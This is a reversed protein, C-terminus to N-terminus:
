RRRAVALRTRLLWFRQALKAFFQGIAGLLTTRWRQVGAVFPVCTVQSARGDASMLSTRVEYRREPELELWPVIPHGKRKRGVHITFSRPPMDRSRVNVVLWSAALSEKRGLDYKVRLRKGLQDLQVPLKGAPEIRKTAQVLLRDPDEWQPHPGPGAPSDAEVGKLFPVLKTLWPARPTTDGWHGPWHVWPPGDDIVELTLEPQRGQGDAVDFWAKTDYLGPKVYSAHSGRAPYVVPRGDVTDVEQWDCRSAYAHQAYVAVDPQDAGHPIRLQIMEWDGEHAGLNAILTPDDYFYFWWYQLWDALEGRHVRGYVRDRLGPQATILRVYQSRYDKGSISLRSDPSGGPGLSELSLPRGAASDGSLTNGPNVVMEAADDAFFAELSDYRVQPKFQELLEPDSRM